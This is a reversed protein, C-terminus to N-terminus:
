LVLFTWDCGLWSCISVQTLNDRNGTHTAMAGVKHSILRLLDATPPFSFFYSFFFRSGSCLILIWTYTNEFHWQVWQPGPPGQNYPGPNYPGMPAGPPGPPGPPGHPGPGGHPGPPGHPGGMPTVPGQLAFTCLNITLQSPQRSEFVCLWIM